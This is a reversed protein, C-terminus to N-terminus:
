LIQTYVWIGIIGVMSLIRIVFVLCLEAGQGFIVHPYKKYMKRWTLFVCFLTHGIHNPENSM